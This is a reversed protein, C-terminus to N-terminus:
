RNEETKGQCSGYKGRYYLFGCLPRGQPPKYCLWNKPFQDHRFGNYNFGALFAFAIDTFCAIPTTNRIFPFRLRRLFTESALLNFQKRFKIAVAAFFVPMRFVAFNAMALIAKTWYAHCDFFSVHLRFCSLFGVAFIAAFIVLLTGFFSMGSMCYTVRDAVAFHTWGFSLYTLTAFLCLFIMVVFAIGRLIVKIDNSKANFTM